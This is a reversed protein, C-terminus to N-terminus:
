NSMNQIQSKQNLKGGSLKNLTFKLQPLLRPLFKSIKVSNLSRNTLYPLQFVMKMLSLERWPIGLPYVQLIVRIELQANM